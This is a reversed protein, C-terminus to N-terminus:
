SDELKKGEVTKSNIAFELICEKMIVSSGDASLVQGNPNGVTLLQLAQHVLATDSLTLLQETPMSRLPDQHSAPPALFQLITQRTKDHSAKLLLAKDKNSRAKNFSEEITQPVPPKLGPPSGAGTVVNPFIAPTSATGRPRENVNSSTSSSSM